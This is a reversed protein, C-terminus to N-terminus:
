EPQTFAHRIFLHGPLEFFVDHDATCDRIPTSYQFPEDGDVAWTQNDSPAFPHYDPGGRLNTASFLSGAETRNLPLFDTPYHGYDLRPSRNRGMRCIPLGLIAMTSQAFIRVHMAM